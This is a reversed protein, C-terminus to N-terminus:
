GLSPRLLGVDVKLHDAIITGRRALAGVLLAIGPHTVDPNATVAEAIAIQGAGIGRRWGIVKGDGAIDIEVRALADVHARGIIQLRNSQMLEAMGETQAM